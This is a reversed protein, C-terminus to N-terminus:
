TRGGSSLLRQFADRAAVVYIMALLGFGLGLASRMLLPGVEAPTPARPVALCLAAAGAVPLLRVLGALNRGEVIRAAGPLVLALGALARRVHGQRFRIRGIQWDRIARDTEPDPAHTRRCRECLSTQASGGSCRDCIAGFCAECLTLGRRRLLLGLLALEPLLVWGWAPLSVGLLTQRVQAALSVGAESPQLASGLYVTVPLPADILFHHVNTGGFRTYSAVLEPALRTARSFLVSQEDLRLARGHAQSLNYIAVASPEAERSAEFSAVAMEVEGKALWAIGRLNEARARAPASARPDLDALLGLMRDLDGARKWTSALGILLVPDGPRQSLAWELRERDGPLPQGREARWAAFSAVDRAPTSALSGWIELPPGLLFGSLVLGAAVLGATAGPLYIMAAVGAVALLVLPGVGFLPLLALATLLLLVGSWGPQLWGAPLHGLGHGLLPIARAFCILVVIATASLVAIGVVAGVLTLVWVLSPFDDAIAAFGALAQRLSRMRLAAELRIAPVGPALESALAALGNRDQAEASALSAWALVPLAQYGRDRWALAAAGLSARLDGGQLNPTPLPGRPVDLPESLGAGASAPVLSLGLWLM